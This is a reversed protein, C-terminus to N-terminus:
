SLRLYRPDRRSRLSRPDPYLRGLTGSATVLETLMEDVLLGLDTGTLDGTLDGGLASNYLRIRSAEFAGSKTNFGNGRQTGIRAIDPTFSSTDFALDEGTFVTGSEIDKLYIQRITGSMKVIMLYTKGDVLGGVTELTDIFNTNDRRSSHASAGDKGLILDYGVDAGDVSADLITRVGTQSSERFVVAATFPPDDGAFMSAIEDWEMNQPATFQVVPFGLIRDAASDSFTPSNVSSANGWTTVDSGSLVVDEDSRLEFTVAPLAM